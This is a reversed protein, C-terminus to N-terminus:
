IEGPGNKQKEAAGTTALVPNRMERYEEVLRFAHTRFLSMQVATGIAVRMYPGKLGSFESDTAIFPIIGSDLLGSYVYKLEDDSGLRLFLFGGNSKFTHIGHESFEKELADRRKTSASIKRTYYDMSRFVAIGADRAPRSVNFEQKSRNLRDIIDSSAVVYGLRLGALGFAKSFTRLVVLNKYKDILGIVSKGYFEYYAEDVVVIGKSRELVSIISSEDIATGTPNNPNCIWVLTAKALDKDDYCLTYNYGDAMCDKMVVESGASKAIYEYEGYTPAPILVRKGFVYTLLAIAEDGGSTPLVNEPKVGCYRAIEENLEAYWEYPYANAKQLSRKVAKIVLPSPAYCAGSYDLRIANDTAYM